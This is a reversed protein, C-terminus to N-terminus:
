QFGRAAFRAAALMSAPNVSGAAAIDQAIGHDPSTRLFPLGLSINITQEFDHAKVVPLGQDHYMALICDVEPVRARALLTDAAFPGAAAIGQAQAARIAPAIIRQEEDGLHGGEGSHPNLGCVSIRPPTATTFHRPLEAHLVQLTALLDAENLAAAVERLPLHTTALAIRLDPAALLMVPHPAACIEALFETQGIFAEGAQLLAQKSIPATVLAAARGQLCAAAAQRLQALVFAANAPHVEGAAVAKAAPLHWVARRAQPTQAYDAAAFPLNFQQARARLLDADGLVVLPPLTEDALLHLCLQAGVGGPEGMTVILPRM